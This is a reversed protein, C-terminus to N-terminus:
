DPSENMREVPGSGSLSSLMMRIQRAHGENRYYENVEQWHSSQPTCQDFTCGVLAIVDEGEDPNAPVGRALAARCHAELNDFYAINDHLLQPGIVVPAHCYLVTEAQLAILASLSARMTSLDAPSSAFPYPLEAADAALMTSIEPIYISIHDPKHGPTAFLELTLDGGSITLREDFLLTPETLRLDGFIDPEKHQMEEIYTAVDPRRMQEVCLRSALIPAPYEADPGAFIQNGWAHDYDAHTNVVLLQRQGLIHSRAYDLMQRATAANILTDVLVVYCETVVICTDVLEGNRCVLIREDWGQNPILQVENTHAM